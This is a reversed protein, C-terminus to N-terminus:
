TPLLLIPIYAAVDHQTQKSKPMPHALLSTSLAMQPPRNFAAPQSSHQLM